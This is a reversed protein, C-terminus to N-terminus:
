GTNNDTTNDTNVPVPEGNVTVNLDPQENAPEVIPNTNDTTVNINVDGANPNSETNTQPEKVVTVTTNDQAPAPQVQDDTTIPESQSDIVVPQIVDQEPVVIHNIDQDTTTTAGSLQAFGRDQLESVSLVQNTNLDVLVLKNSEQDFRIGVNLDDASLRGDLLGEFNVSDGLLFNLKALEDLTNDDNTNNALARLLALQTLLNSDLRITGPPISFPESVVAVEEPQTQVDDTPTPIVQVDVPQVPEVVPVVVPVVVPEVTEEEPVQIILGPPIVPEPQIIVPETSQIDPTPPQVVVEPQQVVPESQPDVQIQVDGNQQDVQVDANDPTQVDVTTGNQDTTDVNINVDDTTAGPAQTSGGEAPQVEGQWSDVPGRLLDAFSTGQSLTLTIMFIAVLIKKM